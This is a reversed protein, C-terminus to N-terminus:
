YLGLCHVARPVHEHVDLSCSNVPNTTTFATDAICWGMEISPLASSSHHLTVKSYRDGLTISCFGRIRPFLVGCVSGDKKEREKVRSDLLTGASHSTRAM